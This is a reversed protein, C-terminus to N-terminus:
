RESGDGPVSQLQVALEAKRKESIVQYEPHDFLPKLADELELGYPSGGDDLFRRIADLSEDDDGRIAHLAAVLILTKRYRPSQARARAWPLAQAILRDAQEQDGIAALLRAVGKAAPLDNSNIM